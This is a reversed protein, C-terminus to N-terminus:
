DAQDLRKAESGTFAPAPAVISQAIIGGVGQRPRRFSSNGFAERMHWEVYYSLMCLFVHAKIREDLWHYIPRVHLDITKMSRFAREVKALDKYARM